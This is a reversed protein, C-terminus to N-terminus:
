NKKLQSVEEQTMGYGSFIAIENAIFEVVGAPIKDELISFPIKHEGDISTAGTQVVNAEFTGQGMEEGQRALKFERDTLPRIALQMVKNDMKVNIKKRYDTGLTINPETVYEVFDIVETKQNTNQSLQIEEPTEEIIKEMEEDVETKKAKKPRAM